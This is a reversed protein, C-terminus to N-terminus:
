RCGQDGVKYNGPVVYLTVAVTAWKYTKHYGSEYACPNNRLAYSTSFGDAVTGAVAAYYTADRKAPVGSCGILLIVASILCIKIMTEM